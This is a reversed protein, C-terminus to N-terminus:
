WAAAAMLAATAAAGLELPGWKAVAADHAAGLLVVEDDLMPNAAPADVVGLDDDGPWLTLEPADAAGM